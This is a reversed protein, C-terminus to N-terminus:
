AGGGVLRYLRVTKGNGRSKRESSEVRGARELARLVVEIAEPRAEVDYRLGKATRPGDALAVLVDRALIGDARGSGRSAARLERERARIRGAVSQVAPMGDLHQDCVPKDESTRRGCGDRECRTPPFRTPDLSRPRPVALDSEKEPESM